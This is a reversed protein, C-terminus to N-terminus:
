GGAPVRWVEVVPGIARARLLRWTFNPWAVLEDDNFHDSLQFFLELESQTPDPDPSFRAVREGKAALAERVRVQLAHNTRQEYVEIVFLAPGLSALYGPLDAAAPGRPAVLWRLDWRQIEAPFEGVKAQWGTWVSLPMKPLKGYFHLGEPERVLPLDLAPPAASLYVTEARAGPRAELWQAVEGLTDPRSRLWALKACVFTPVVLALAAIGVGLKRGFRGAVQQLGWAAFVAACPVLPLLFREYTREFLGIVLLYPLVFALVVLRERRREARAEGRLAVLAVLAVGLLVVLVPEYNWAVQAVVPFGKGVFQGLAVSHEAFKIAGEEVGRVQEVEAFLFPYFVPLALACAVIPLALKVDLKKAGGGRLLHAALGALLIALSNHLTGLALASFLAALAYARWTGERVVKLDAWLAAVMLTTAVAHPRAQQAFSQSLLSTAVLAAAFVAWGDRVFRRALLFTLPVCALAALAVIWRVQVHTWAAARLHGALEKPADAGNTPPRAPLLRAVEAVLHPYQEDPAEVASLTENGKWGERLMDVHAPIDPDPEEWTPVGYGLGWVRLVLAALVVLWLLRPIRSSNM